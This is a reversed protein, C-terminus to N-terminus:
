ADADEEPDTSAGTPLPKKTEIDGKLEIRSGVYKTILDHAIRDDYRSAEITRDARVGWHSDGVRLTFSEIRSLICTYTIIKKQQELPAIVFNTATFDFSFKGLDKGVHSRITTPEPTISVDSASCQGPCTLADVWARRGVGKINRSLHQDVVGSYVHLLYRGVNSRNEKRGDAQLAKPVGRPSLVLIRYLDALLSGTHLSQNANDKPMGNRQNYSRFFKAELWNSHRWGYASMAMNAVKLDHLNVVLDARLYRPKFPAKASKVAQEKKRYLRECHIMSLPNQINRANLEQLVAMSFAAVIGGEHEQSPYGSGSLIEPLSQIAQEYIM